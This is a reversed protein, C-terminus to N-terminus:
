TYRAQRVAQYARPTSPSGLVQCRRGTAGHIPIALRAARRAVSADGPRPGVTWTPDHSRCAVARESGILYTIDPRARTSRGFAQSTAHFHGPFVAVRGVWLCLGDGGRNAPRENPSDLLNPGPEDFPRPRAPHARSNPRHSRCSGRGRHRGPRGTSQAFDTAMSSACSATQANPPLQATLRSSLDADHLRSQLIPLGPADVRSRASVSPRM